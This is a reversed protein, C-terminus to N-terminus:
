KQIEAPSDSHNPNKAKEEQYMKRSGEHNDGVSNPRNATEEQYMKRSEEHIDGVLNPRKAKGEQHMKRSEAPTDGVSNPRNAMAEHYMKQSEAPTDGVSNPRMAKGEQYVKRIEEPTDGGADPHSTAAEQPMKQTAQSTDGIPNRQASGNAKFDFGEKSVSAHPLSRISDVQATAFHPSGPKKTLLNGLLHNSTAVDRKDLGREQATEIMKNDGIERKLAAL